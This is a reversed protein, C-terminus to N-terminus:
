DDLALSFAVDASVFYEGRKREVLGQRLLSKLAAAVNIAARGDPELVRHVEAFVMALLELFEPYTADSDFDKGAHYPPGM